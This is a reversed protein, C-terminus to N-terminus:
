NDDGEWGGADPLPSAVFPDDEKVIRKRQGHPNDLLFFFSYLYILFNQRDKLYGIDM